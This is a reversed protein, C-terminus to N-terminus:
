LNFELYSHEKQKTDQPPVSNRANQQGKANVTHLLKKLRINEETLQSIRGEATALDTTVQRIQKQYSECKIELRKNNQALKGNTEQSELLKRRLVEIEEKVEQEVEARLQAELTKEIDEGNSINLVNELSAAHKSPPHQHM